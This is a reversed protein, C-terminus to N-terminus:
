YDLGKIAPIGRDFAHSVKRMETVTDALAVIEDPANRGTVVINVHSPRGEIAAIVEQLSIWEWSIAYTLEDLIVLRHEGAEIRSRALQWASEAIKQSRELDNSLWTFGDGVTDWDAGILRAVREEGVQWRGSKVFQVVCVPWDRGRARMLMGFAATSKGKGDGTNVIVISPAGDTAWRSRTTPPEATM